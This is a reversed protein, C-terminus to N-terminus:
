RIRVQYLGANEVDDVWAMLKRVIHTPLNPLAKKVKTTLDVKFIDMM